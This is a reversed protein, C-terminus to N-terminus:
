GFDTWRRRRYGIWAPRKQGNLWSRFARLSAPFTLGRKELAVFIITSLITLFVSIPRFYVLLVLFPIAARADIGFFKVPRMSNRWHWNVKEEQTDEAVGM